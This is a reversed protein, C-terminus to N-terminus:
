VGEATDRSLSADHGLPHLDRDDAGGLSVRLDEVVGLRHAAPYSLRSGHQDAAPEGTHHFGCRPSGRRGTSRHEPDEGGQRGAFGVGVDSVGYRGPGAV